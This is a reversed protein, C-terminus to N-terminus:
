SLRGYSIHFVCLESRAQDEAMPTRQSGSSNLFMCCIHLLIATTLVPMMNFNMLGQLVEQLRHLIPIKFKECYLITGRGVHTLSPM